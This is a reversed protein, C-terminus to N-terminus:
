QLAERLKNIIQWTESMRNELELVRARLTRIQTEPALAAAHALDAPGEEFSEAMAERDVREKINQYVRHGRPATGNARDIQQVQKRLKVATPTIDVPTKPPYYKCKGLQHSAAEPSDGCKLCHDGTRYKGCDDALLDRPEDASIKELVSLIVTKDVGGQEWFVEAYNPKNNAPHAFGRKGSKTHRVMCPLQERRM